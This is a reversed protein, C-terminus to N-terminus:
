KFEAKNLIEELLFHYAARKDIYQMSASQSRSKANEIASDYNRGFGGGYEEHEEQFKKHAEAKALDGEADKKADLAKLVEDFILNTIWKVYDRKTCEAM